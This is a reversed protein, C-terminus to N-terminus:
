FKIRPVLAPVQRKYKSYEQGHKELLKKEELRIGIFLYGYLVVCSILAVLTPTFLIFGLSILIVGSYIPHRVKSLIGERILGGNRETRLGIFEGFGYTKIVKNIILIGFTAFMLSFYKTYDNVIIFPKSEIQIAYILVPIISFIAFASYFLRYKQGKLGMTDSFWNKASISAFFSHFFYYGIWLALLIVLESM